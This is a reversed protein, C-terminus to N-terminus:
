SDEERPTPENIVSLAFNAADEMASAYSGPTKEYIRAQDQLGRRIREARTRWEHALRANEDRDRLAKAHAMEEADFRDAWRHLARRGVPIAEKGDVEVPLGNDALLRLYDSHGSM